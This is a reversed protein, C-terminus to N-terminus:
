LLVMEITTPWSFFSNVTWLSRIQSEDLNKLAAQEPRQISPLFPLTL